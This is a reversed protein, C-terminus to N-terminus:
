NPSWEAEQDISDPNEHAKFIGKSSPGSWLVPLPVSISNREMRVKCIETVRSAFFSFFLCGKSRTQLFLRRKAVIGKGFKFGGNQFARLSHVFEIKKSKHSPASKFRKEASLVTLKSVGRSLPECSKHGRERVNWKNGPGGVGSKTLQSSNSSTTGKSLTNCSFTNQVRDSSSNHFPRKDNKGLKSPLIKNKRSFFGSAFCKPFTKASSSACMSITTNSNSNRTVSNSQCFEIKKGRNNGTRTGKLNSFNFNRGKSSKAGRQPLPSSRFPKKDKNNNNNGLATFVEKSKKKSKSLKAIQDEFKEGFLAQTSEEFSKENETMIDKVRRHDSIVSELIYSRRYFTTRNSAQGVLAVIQEFLKCMESIREVSENSSESDDSVATKEDEAAMWLTSLPGMINHISTQINTLSQDLQIVKRMNSEHLLEKIFSDMPRPGHVNCPVPNDTLIMEKITKDSIHADFYKKMYEILGQPLEYSDDKSFMDFRQCKFPPQQETIDTSDEERSRKPTGPAHGMEHSENEGTRTPSRRSFRSFM